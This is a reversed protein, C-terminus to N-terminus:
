FEFHWAIGTAGQYPDAYPVIRGGFLELEHEGAISHGIVLGMVGGMVVDSFYHEGDDLREVAVLVGLGYLPVGALPGYAQHMVSAVTFTSSTHGSPFAFYEGNPSNDWSALKGAVTSLGNVILASFLTRGVEYTKDDQRQQGLLYWVGAAGFHLAPNGLAGFADAFDEKFISKDRLSDEITDDPGTSQIALSGGYTLGLIILNPANGYVAKTDDWLDSPLTEFDRSVTEWFGPLPRRQRRGAPPTSDATPDGDQSVPADFTSESHKDSYAGNKAEDFSALTLWTSPSSQSPQESAGLRAQRVAEVQPALARLADHRQSCGASIAFCLAFAAV